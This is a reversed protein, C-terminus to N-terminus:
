RGCSAASLCRREWKAREKEFAAQCSENTGLCQTGAVMRRSRQRCMERTADDCAVPTAPHPPSAFAAPPPISVPAAAAPTMALGAGLLCLSLARGAHRLAGDACATSMSQM